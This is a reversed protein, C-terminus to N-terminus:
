EKDGMAKKLVANVRGRFDVCALVDKMPGSVDAVQLGDIEALVADLLASEADEYTKYYMEMGSCNPSGEKTYFTWKKKFCEWQVYGYVTHADRCWKLALAVTPASFVKGGLTKYNHNYEKEEEYCRTDGGRTEFCARTLWDFGAAKLVKAQELTVLQLAGGRKDKDMIGDKGENLCDRGVAVMRNLNLLSKSM